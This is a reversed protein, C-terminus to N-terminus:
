KAKRGLKVVQHKHPGKTAHLLFGDMGPALWVESLTYTGNVEDFVARDALSPSDSGALRTAIVAVTTPGKAPAIALEMQDTSVTLRYEGAPHTKGQAMFPFPANVYIVEQAYTVAPGAALLLIAAALLWLPQRMVQVGKM